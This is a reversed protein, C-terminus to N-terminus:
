LALGSDGGVPPMAVGAQQPTVGAQLPGDGIPRGEYAVREKERPLTLLAIPCRWQKGGSSRFHILADSTEPRVPPSISRVKRGNSPTSRQM